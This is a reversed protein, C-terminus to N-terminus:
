SRLQPWGNPRDVYHLWHREHTEVFEIHLENNTGLQGCNHLAERECAGCVLTGAGKGRECLPCLALYRVRPFPRQLFPVYRAAQDTM